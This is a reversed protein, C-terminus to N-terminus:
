KEESFSRTNRNKSAGLGFMRKRALRRRINSGLGRTDNIYFLMVCDPEPKM